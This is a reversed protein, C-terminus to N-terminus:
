AMPKGHEYRTCGDVPKTVGAHRLALTLNPFTAHSIPTREIGLMLAATYTPRDAGTEYVMWYSNGEGYNYITEM